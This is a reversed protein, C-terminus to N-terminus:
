MKVPRKCKRAVKEEKIVDTFGDVGSERKEKRAECTRDMWAM